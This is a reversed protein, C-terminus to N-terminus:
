EGHYLEKLMAIERAYGDLDNPTELSLPVGQLASHNILREFADLGIHGEGLKAHRDRHSGLPNLSDNIHVALLRDLGISRDFHELVEDLHNVIDYGGDFIHCTDLCVGLMEKHAVGEIIEALEEFTKGMMGGTGAMTELLIKNEVKDELIENLAEVILRIGEKEGQGGHGGPHLNYLCGPLDRLRALDDKMTDISLRRLEPKQSCLNYTYPAHAILPGFGNEKALQSLAAADSPNHAKARFGRPNRSFFQFTNAGITLATKGMNLFGKSSSIFCGAYLM